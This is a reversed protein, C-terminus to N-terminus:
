LIMLNNIRELISLFPVIGTGHAIFMYPSGKTLWEEKSLNIVRYIASFHVRFSHDFLKLDLINKLFTSCLGQELIEQKLKQYRLVTFCIKFTKSKDQHKNESYFPDNLISFYRSKIRPLDDEIISSPIDKLRDPHSAYDKLTLYPHNKIEDPLFQLDYESHFKSLKLKESKIDIDNILM